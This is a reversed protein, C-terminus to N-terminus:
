HLNLLIPNKIYHIIQRIHKRIQLIVINAINNLFVLFYELNQFLLTLNFRLLMSNQLGYHLILFRLIFALILSTFGLRLVHIVLLEIILIKLSALIESLHNARFVLIKAVNVIELVVLVILVMLIVLIVLIVLIMLIVLVVVVFVGLILALVIEKVPILHRGGRVGSRRTVLFSVGKYIPTDVLFTNCILFIIKIIKCPLILLETQCSM